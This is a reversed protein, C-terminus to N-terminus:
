IKAKRLIGIKKVKIIAIIKIIILDIVIIIVEMTPTIIAEKVMIPMIIIETIIESNLTIIIRLYLVIRCTSINQM